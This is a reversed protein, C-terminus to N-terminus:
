QIGSVGRTETKSDNLRIRGSAVDDYQGACEFPYLDYRAGYVIVNADATQVTGRVRAFYSGGVVILNADELRGWENALIRRM